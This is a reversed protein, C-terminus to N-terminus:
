LAEATGCGRNLCCSCRLVVVVSLCFLMEAELCSVCTPKDGAHMVWVGSKGEGTHIHLESLGIFIWERSM